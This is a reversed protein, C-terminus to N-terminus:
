FGKEVQCRGGGRGISEEVTLSSLVAEVGPLFRPGGQGSEEQDELEM